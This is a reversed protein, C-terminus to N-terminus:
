IVVFQSNTLALGTGLSAFQVQAGGGTGDANYSLAGTAPNYIIRDDADMAAAAIALQNAPLTGPALGSCSFVADNLQVLDDAGEPIGPRCSRSRLPPM